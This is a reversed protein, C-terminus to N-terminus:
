CQELYTIYKNLACKLGLSNSQSMQVFAPNEDLHEVIEAIEKPSDVEFLEGPKYDGFGFSECFCDIWGVYGKITQIQLPKGTQRGDDIIWEIFDARHNM